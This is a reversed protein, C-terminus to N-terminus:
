NTEEVKEGSPLSREVSWRLKTDKEIRGKEVRSTNKDCLIFYLLIITEERQISLMKTALLNIRPTAVAVPHWSTAMRSAPNAEALMSLVALRRRLGVGAVRASHRM